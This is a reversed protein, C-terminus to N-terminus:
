VHQLEEQGQFPRLHTTGCQENWHCLTQEGEANFERAGQEAAKFMAVAAVTKQRVAATAM